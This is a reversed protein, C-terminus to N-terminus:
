QCKLERIIELLDQTIGLIIEELEDKNWLISSRTEHVPEFGLEKLYKSNVMFGLLNSIETTNMTNIKNM